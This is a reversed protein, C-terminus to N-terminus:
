VQVDDRRREVHPQAVETRASRQGVAVDVGRKGGLLREAGALDDVKTPLVQEVGVGACLAPAALVGAGGAAGALREGGLVDHEVELVVEQLVARGHQRWAALTLRQGYPRPM